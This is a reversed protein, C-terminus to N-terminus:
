SDAGLGSVDLGRLPFVKQGLCHLHTHCHSSAFERSFLKEKSM